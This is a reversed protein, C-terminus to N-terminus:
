AAQPLALERLEVTVAPMEIALRGDKTQTIPPLSPMGLLLEAFWPVARAALAMTALGTQPAAGHRGNANYFEIMHPSIVALKTALGAGVLDHRAADADVGEPLRGVILAYSNLTDLLLVRQDRWIREEVVPVPVLWSQAVSSASVRARAEHNAGAGVITSSLSGNDRMFRLAAATANGCFVPATSDTPGAQYVAIGDQRLVAIKGFARADPRHAAAAFANLEAQSITHVAERRDLVVGCTHPRDGVFTTFCAQILAVHM